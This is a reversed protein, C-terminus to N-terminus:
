SGWRTPM